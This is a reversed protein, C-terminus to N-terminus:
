EEEDEGYNVFRNCDDYELGVLDDFSEMLMNFNDPYTEYGTSYIVKGM